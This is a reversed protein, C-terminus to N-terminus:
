ERERKRERERERERERARASEKERGREREGPPDVELKNTLRSTSPTTFIKYGATPTFVSHSGLCAWRLAVM